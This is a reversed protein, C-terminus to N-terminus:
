FLKYLILALLVIEVARATGAGYKQAFTQETQNVVEVVKEVEAAAEAKLSDIKAQVEAIQDAFLDEGGAKLQAIAAEMKAINAKVDESM